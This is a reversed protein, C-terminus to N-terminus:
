PSNSSPVRTPIVTHPTSMCTETHTAYMAYVADFALDCPCHSSGTGVWLGVWWLVVHLFLVCKIFLVM